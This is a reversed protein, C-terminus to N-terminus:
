SMMLFNAIAFIIHCLTFLAAPILGIGNQRDALYLIFAACPVLTLLLIVLANAIGAYYCSWAALYVLVCVLAAVLHPSLRLPKADVRRIFCLGFMMAVQCISGIMDLVPTASEVQLVDNPAPHTMWVLNPLMIIAFLLVGWLDFGMTYKKLLTKM